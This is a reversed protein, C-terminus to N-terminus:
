SIVSDLSIDLLPRSVNYFISVYSLLASFEFRDFFFQGAKPLGLSLKEALSM